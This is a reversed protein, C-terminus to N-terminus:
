EILTAEGPPTVPTVPRREGKENYVHPHAIVPIPGYDQDGVMHEADIGTILSLRPSTYHGIIRETLEDKLRHLYNMESNLRGLRNRWENDGGNILWTARTVAAEHDKCSICIGCAKLDNLQLECVSIHDVLEPLQKVFEEYIRHKTVMALPWELEIDTKCNHVLQLAKHAQELETKHLTDGDGQIVGTAVHTNNARTIRVAFTLWEMAQKLGKLETQRGSTITQAGVTDNIYKHPFMRHFYSLIAKRARLEAIAKFPGSVGAMYFTDIEKVEPDKLYLYLAWTSDLGGSFSLLPRKM